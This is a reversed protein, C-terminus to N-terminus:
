IFFFLFDNYYFNYQPGFVLLIYATSLTPPSYRVLTSSYSFFQENDGQLVLIVLRWIGTLQEGPM